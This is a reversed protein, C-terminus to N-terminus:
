PGLGPWVLDAPLGSNSDVLVGGDDSGNLFVSWIRPQLALQYCLAGNSFPDAPPAPLLGRAVLVEWPTAGGHVRWALLGCLASRQAERRLAAAIMTERPPSLFLALLKGGPNVAAELAARALATDAFTPPLEGSAYALFAGLEARYAALTPATTRSQLGRPLRSSRALHELWPVLDAEYAALTAPVDLIIHSTLGLGLEGPELPEPPVMGLSAVSSLFLDPDDTQPMREVVVKYVHTYEGRLARAAAFQALGADAELGALLRSAEPPSLQPFLALAHVGDLASQWVGTSHILPILGEQARLSLRAQALNCRVFGLAAPVDGKALAQRALFTRLAALLRLPQHDPFPTEPGEIPDFVLIEGPAILFRDSLAALRAATEPPLIPLPVDPSELGVIPLDLGALQEVLAPFHERWRPLVDAAVPGTEDGALRGLSLAILVLALRVLRRPFPM